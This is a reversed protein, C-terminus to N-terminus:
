HRECPLNGADSSEYCCRSSDQCQWCLDTCTQQEAMMRDAMASAKIKADLEELQKLNAGQMETIKTQDPTWDLETCLHEYYPALDAPILLSLTAALSM